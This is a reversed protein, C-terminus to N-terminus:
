NDVCLHLPGQFVTQGTYDIWKIWGQIKRFKNIEVESAQKEGQHSSTLLQFHGCMM